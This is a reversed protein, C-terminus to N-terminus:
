PSLTAEIYPSSNLSNVNSINVVCYRELGSCLVILTEDGTVVPLWRSDPLGCAFWTITCDLLCQWDRSGFPFSLRFCYLLLLELQVLSIFTLGVVPLITLSVLVVCLLLPDISNPVCCSLSIDMHYLSVLIKFCQTMVKNTDVVLVSSFYRFWDVDM